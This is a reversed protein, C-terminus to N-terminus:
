SAHAGYEVLLRGSALRIGDHWCEFAIRSQDEDYLNISFTNGPRLAATFKVSLICKLRIQGRWQEVARVVEDLIVVGPVVPDGPFHGALAPHDTAIVRHAEHSM